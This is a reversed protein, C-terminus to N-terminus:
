LTWYLHLPAMLVTVTKLSTMVEALRHSALLNVTRGNGVTDSAPSPLLTEM